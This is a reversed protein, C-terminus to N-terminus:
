KEVQAKVTQVEEFRANLTFVSETKQVHCSLPLASVGSTVRHLHKLLFFSFNKCRLRCLCSKFHFNCNATALFLNPGEAGSPEM